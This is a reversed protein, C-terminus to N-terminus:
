KVKSVGKETKFITKPNSSKSEVHYRNLATITYTYFENPLASKDVFRFKTGKEFFPTVHVLNLADEVSGPEDSKFRYIAYYAPLKENEIDKSGPKWILKPNGRKKGIRKLKPLDPAKEAIEEVIPILAPRAFYFNVSDRLGLRNRLLTNASFYASGKVFQNKRNLRIQDPIELPNDWAVEDNDGVKYAAQGIYLHRDGVNSGWWKLLTEYDAAPFGINWYLQPIVFDIWGRKIWKLVDAHLDDYSTVGATTNSGMRDKDSNRWVGFPSIGFKVHPKQSKIAQSLTEIFNDIHQRRWDGIERFNQGSQRFMATDPFVEDKIKYPYFYDDFQVADIDYNSVVEMVIQILHLRVAEIAPNLYFRNGYKVLWSRNRRFDHNPALAMTDLNITSRFPNFWAHFEMSRKHTEEIMFKLIDYDPQPPNGQKGNLFASWPVLDSKYFADGAPRVQVIVANMGVSKLKDLLNIFQEQQAIKVPSPRKPFDTNFVTAIWAARFERKPTFPEQAKLFIFSFALFVSLFYKM